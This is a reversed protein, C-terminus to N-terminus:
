AAGAVEQVFRVPLRGRRAAVAQGAGRITRVPEAMAAEPAAAIDGGVSAAAPDAPPGAEGAVPVGGPSQGVAAPQMAGLKSIIGAGPKPKQLQSIKYLQDEDLSAGWNYMVNAYGMVEQANPSDIEFSFKGPEVGPCNWRYLVNVLYQQLTEQLNQADYKVIRSLTEGHLEAVGSGLGTAEATSSLTQGVAVQRILRDFYGDVLSELLSASATGAELRQVGNTDRSNPWRPYILAVNSFQQSAAAEAEAKARPNEADYYFVTLGNAFRELYNLLLAWVQQKMWWLWYLRGRLGVGHIAGARDGESFDAAEPEHKHLVYQEREDPTPFYALGWDTPEAKGPFTSHVRVGFTGDRKFVLSDCHVPVYDAVTQVRRGKVWDWKMTMEVAVRGFFVADLLHMKFRQFNPIREIVATVIERAEQEAPNTEDRPEIHWSLAATPMQRSRVADFIVADRWMAQANQRSHKLAEDFTYRYTRAATQVLSSFQLFHPVSQGGGGPPLTGPDGLAPAPFGMEQATYNFPSSLSTLSTM